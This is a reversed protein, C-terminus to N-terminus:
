NCARNGTTDNKKRGHPYLKLRIQSKTVRHVTAWWPEKTGPIRWALITSRTERGEELPDEWPDLKRRMDGANALPNKVM